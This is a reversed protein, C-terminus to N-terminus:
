HRRLPAIACSRNARDGPSKMAIRHAWSAFHPESPWRVLASEGSIDDPAPPRLAVAPRRQWLAAKGGLSQRCVRGCPYHRVPTEDETICTLVMRVRTRSQGPWPQRGAPRLARGQCPRIPVKKQHEYLSLRLLPGEVLPSAPGPMPRGIPGNAVTRRGIDGFRRSPAVGNPVIVQRNRRSATRRPQCLTERTAMRGHRERPLAM